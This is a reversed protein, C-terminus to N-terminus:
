CIKLYNEEDYWWLRGPPKLSSFFIKFLYLILIYGLDKENLSYYDKYYKM